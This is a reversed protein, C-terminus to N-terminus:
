GDQPISRRESSRALFVAVCLITATPYLYMWRQAHTWFAAWAGECPVFVGSAHPMLVVIALLPALWKTLRENSQQSSFVLYTAAPILLVM